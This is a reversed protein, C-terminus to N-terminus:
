KNLKGDTAVTSKVFKWHQGSFDGSSRLGVFKSDDGDNYVDLSLSTGRWETTLRFYEDKEQTIKWRQGSFNGTALQLQNNLNGDNVVKLSYEDGRWQTTLRYYGDGNPTIEWLQGSFGGKKALVPQNNNKGDNVIDLVKGDGQFECSLYYYFGQEFAYAQTQSFAILVIGILVALKKM